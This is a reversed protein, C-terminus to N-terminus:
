RKLGEEAMRRLFNETTISQERSIKNQVTDIKCIPPDNEKRAKCTFRRDKGKTDFIQFPHLFYYTHVNKERSM